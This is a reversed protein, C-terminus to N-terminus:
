FESKMKLTLIICESGHSIYKHQSHMIVCLLETEFIM